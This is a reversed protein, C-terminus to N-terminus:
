APDDIIRIADYEADRPHACLQPCISYHRQHVTMMCWYMICCGSLWNGIKKTSWGFAAYPYCQASILPRDPSILGPYRFRYKMPDVGRSGFTWYCLPENPSSRPCGNCLLGALVRFLDALSDCTSVMVADYM